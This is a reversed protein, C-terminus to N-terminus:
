DWRVPLERLGRFVITRKYRPAALDIRLRPFRDVLAGLAIEAEAQALASGICHHIGFGFSLPPGQERGLDLRDPDPFQEPDRNAAGLLGMVFRGPPITTGGLEIPETPIRQVLQIPSDFRLLESVGQPRLEPETRWRVFQDAHNWLQWLGNGILNATTEHGAVLLLTTFAVVEDESLRDEGDSAAVLASLLDDAPEHRRAEILDRLYRDMALAAADARARAKKSSVAEVDLGAVLDPVWAGFRRHDGAPVGLIDCIVLIPFRYCYTELLETGGDPALQDLLGHAVGEIRPRAREVTRPTFARSALKRLRTHDPPDMLILFRKALSRFEGAAEGDGVNDAFRIAVRLPLETLLGRGDRGARISLDCNSEDSSAAPHKLLELVEQYGSVLTAPLITHNVREHARLRAYLPYPDARYRPDFVFRLVDVSHFSAPRDQDPITATM